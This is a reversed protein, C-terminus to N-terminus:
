DPGPRCNDHRFGNDYQKIQRQVPAATLTASGSGRTLRSYRHGPTISPACFLRQEPRRASLWYRCWQWGPAQGMALFDGEAKTQLPQAASQPLHCPWHLPHPAQFVRTSTRRPAALDGDAARRPPPKEPAASPETLVRASIATSSIGLIEVPVWSNSRTSPPPRTGPEQI